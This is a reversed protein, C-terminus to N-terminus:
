QWEGQLVFAAWYFPAEFRGSQWMDIQAARLAAAPSLGGVLMGRYFSTMLQATAVDRVDWLSAVVRPSGAYMFARALGVMGEGKIERGLATRCASLVVLDAGLNLNFLEHVRLFGDQPEGKRDVLSLVLGSLEPRESDLIGHTAFHVFRYDALDPRAVAARSADFDLAKLTRAPDALGAISEAEGRSYPLREFRTTAGSRGAAGLRPDGADFVPDSFVALSKAARSRGSAERRIVELVSASPLNVIEHGAIMPCFRVAPMCRGAPDALAAFPIYHLIGDAVVVVRRQSIERAVPGLLMASLETAARETEARALRQRSETLLDYFRRSAREIQTRAPLAYGRVATKTVSWLYSREEGLRYELLVSRDDLLRAQIEEVTLPQPQTMAAYRPSNIRVQTRVDRYAQLLSELEREAAAAQAPTHTRNLLETRSRERADLRRRAGRERELLAPDVGRTIGARAEALMELMSRARARESVHLAQGDYGAGPEERHLRMLVDIYLEYYNQRAALYSARLDQSAINTRLSEALTLAEDAMTRATRLDGRDAVHEALALLTNAENSRDGISRFLERAQRYHEDAATHNGRAAHTRGLNHLSQGEGRRDGGARRLRLSDELHVLAPAYDGAYFATLGLNNLALSENRPNSVVRSTALAQDFHSRAEAQQGLTLYAWGINNLTQPTGQRDDSARRHTLAERHHALARASDGLSWYSLGMTDLAWAQTNWDRAARALRLAEACVDLSKQYEGLRWHLSCM